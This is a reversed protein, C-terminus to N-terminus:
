PTVTYASHTLRHMLTREATTFSETASATLSAGILSPVCHHPHKYLFPVKVEALKSLNFEKALLLADLFCPVHHLM